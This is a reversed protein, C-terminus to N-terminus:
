FHAHRIRNNKYDAVYLGGDADLALGFPTDFSARRALGGDGDFGFVGSGAATRIILGSGEDRVVRVVSHGYESFYVAGTAPNLAVDVPVSVGAVGPDGGDGDYRTNTGNGAFRHITAGGSGLGPVIRRVRNATYDAVYVVGDPAIGLGCPNSLHAATAPGGDGDDGPVGPTGAYTRVRLQGDPPETAMRVIRANGWESVYIAGDPGVAVDCPRNLPATAAVAGEPALGPLGTGAVTTVASTAPDVRRLRHNYRDAVLHTGDLDVALGEPDNFRANEGIGDAFGCGRGAVTDITRDPRM